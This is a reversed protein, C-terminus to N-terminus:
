HYSIGPLQDIMWKNLYQEKQLRMQKELLNKMMTQMPNQFMVVVIGIFICTAAIIKISLFAIM